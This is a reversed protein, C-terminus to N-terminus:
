PCGSSLLDVHSVPTIRPAFFSGTAASGRATATNWGLEPLGLSGLACKPAPQYQSTREESAVWVFLPAAPQVPPSAPAAAQEHWPAGVPLLPQQEAQEVFVGGATNVYAGTRM